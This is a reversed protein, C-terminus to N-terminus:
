SVCVFLCVKAEWICLRKSTWTEISLFYLSKKQIVDVNDLSELFVAYLIIYIIILANCFVSCVCVYTCVDPTQNEVPICLRASKQVHQHHVPPERTTLVQHQKGLLTLSDTPPSCTYGEGGRRM